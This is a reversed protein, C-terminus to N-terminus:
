ALQGRALATIKAWQLPASSTALNSLYVRRIGLRDLAAITTAAIADATQGAAFDRVVADIPVPIFQSLQELTKRRPSRYYFVGALIPLDLGHRASAALLQEIGSLDHHSVIQTLVFDVSSREALLYDVQQAVNRHPNIWGGLVMSPHASRLVQRLEWAHPLCRPIGDHKDGGLVVLGPFRERRSREAYRRCYDLTHKLTLFPVIRERVADSGLNNVLHSLNEEEGIGVANDTLFVVTDSKSLRQVSHYADIWADMAQAGTLDKRPPRLEVAVLPRDSNLRDRLSGGTSNVPRLSRGSADDTLEGAL